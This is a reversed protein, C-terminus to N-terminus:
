RRAEAAESQALVAPENHRQLVAEMEKVGAGARELRDDVRLRIPGAVPEIVAGGVRGAPEDGPGHRHARARGHGGEVPQPRVPAALAQEVPEGYGVAAGEAGVTPGEIERVRLGLMRVIQAQSWSGALPATALRRTKTSV